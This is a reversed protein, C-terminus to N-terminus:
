LTVFIYGWYSGCRRCVGSYCVYGWVPLPSGPPLSTSARLSHLTLEKGLVFAENETITEDLNAAYVVIVQYKPFRVAQRGGVLQRDIQYWAEDDNYQPTVAVINTIIQDNM